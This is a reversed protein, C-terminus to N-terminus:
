NDRSKDLISAHSCGVTNAANGMARSSFIEVQVKPFLAFTKLVEKKEPITMSIQSMLTTYGLLADVLDKVETKKRRAGKEVEKSVLDLIDKIANEDQTREEKFETRLGDWKM